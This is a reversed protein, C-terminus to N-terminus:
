VWSGNLFPASIGQLDAAALEVAAQHCARALIWIQLGHLRAKFGTGAVNDGHRNAPNLALRGAM